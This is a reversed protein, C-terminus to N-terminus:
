QLTKIYRFSQSMARSFAVFFVIMCSLAYMDVSIGPILYFAVSVIAQFIGISFLQKAFFHNVSYWIETDELTLRIRFGYFPNPKIKRLMLPLSILAALLSFGIYMFLLTKM